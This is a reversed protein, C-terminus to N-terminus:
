LTTQPTGSAEPPTKSTKARMAMDLLFGLRRRKEFTTLDRTEIPGGNKGTLEHRETAKGHLALLTKLADLKQHLRVKTVRYSERDEGAGEYRTEVEISQIAAAVEDDLNNAHQLNGHEDFLGRVDAFAIRALEAFTREYTAGISDTFAKQLANRAEIFAPDRSWKWLTHSSFGLKRCTGYPQWNNEPLANLYERQKDTLAALMEEISKAAPPEATQV